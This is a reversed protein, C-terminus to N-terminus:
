HLTLIARRLAEAAGAEGKERYLPACDVFTEIGIAELAMEIAHRVGHGLEKSSIRCCVIPIEQSRSKVTQLFDFMRSEDFRVNCVVLDVRADLRKLAEDTSYAAVIEADNGVIRRIARVAERTGAM